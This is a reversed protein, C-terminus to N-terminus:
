NGSPREVGEIIYRDVPAKQPELKLGLRDLVMFLTPRIPDAMDQDEASPAGQRPQMPVWGDTQINYLGKLGTRDIMPRDSWNEVFLVLDAMNVADGHLGRGQGGNFIHCPLGKEPPTDTCDKEEMASKQLKPGNKAVV